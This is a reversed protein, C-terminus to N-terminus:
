GVRHRRTFQPTTAGVGDEAAAAAAAAHSRSFIKTFVASAPQLLCAPSAYYVLDKLVFAECTKLAARMLVLSFLEAAPSTSKVVEQLAAIGGRM